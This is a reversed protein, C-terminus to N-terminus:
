VFCICLDNSNKLIYRCPINPTIPDIQETAPNTTHILSLLVATITAKAM